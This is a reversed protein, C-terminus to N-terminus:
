RWRLAAAPSKGHIATILFLAQAGLSQIQLQLPGSSPLATNSQVALQGVPTDILIRGQGDTGAVRVELKAGIELALLAPPPQQVVVSPAPPPPPAPPGPPPPPTVSSM